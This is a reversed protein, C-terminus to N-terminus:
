KQLGKNHLWAKALTVVDPDHSQLMKRVEAETVSAQVNARKAVNEFNFFEATDDDQTPNPEKEKANPNGSNDRLKGRGQHGPKGLTIGDSFGPRISSVPTGTQVAVNAFMPIHALDSSLIKKPRGIKPKVHNPDLSKVAKKVHYKIVNDIAQRSVGHMDGIQKLTHGKKRLALYRQGATAQEGLEEPDPLTQLKKLKEQKRHESVKANRAQQYELYKKREEPNTQYKQKQKEVQAKHKEPNAERYRKFQDRKQEKIKERFEPDTHFRTIISIYPPSKGFHKAVETQTHGKGLMDLYEQVHPPIIHPKNTM